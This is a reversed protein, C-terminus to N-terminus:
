GAVDMNRKVKLSDDDGLSHISWTQAVKYEITPEDILMTGDKPRYSRWKRIMATVFKLLFQM